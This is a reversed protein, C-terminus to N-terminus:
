LQDEGRKVLWHKELFRMLRPNFIGTNEQPLMHGAGPVLWLDAEGIGDAIDKAHQPTAYEDKEGQVVLVPCRIQRLVPRMDWTLSEMRHWGDFWNNFVAEYKEGHTYKMGKRFREDTIFSQKIALIGPEMMPEVYIHAAVTAICGVRSPHQVAFYLATTGGDSHGVLAARNIGLQELIEYLDEVDTAFTPLDLGPRDDSGGYGWRDYLIVRYGADTLVPVQGKWARVSGLGHHLLVVVPGSEPGHQEVNLNHGNVLM